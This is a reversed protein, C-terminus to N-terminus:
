ATRETKIVAFPAGQPDILVGFTGVDPIPMPDVMVQGGGDRAAQAAAEADDVEFDPMWNTPVGEPLMDTIGGLQKGEKNILVYNGMEEGTTEFTWGFLDGYFIQAQEKDKTGLEPWSFSGHEDRVKWGPMSDSQWLNIMAGTPDSLVAMRGNPLDMGPVIAQAGLETAKAVTKDVDDVSIYLNWHPPINMSREQEPQEYGGAAGRGGVLFTAYEGLDGIESTEDSWGFVKSYFPKAAALDTTALEVWCFTGPEHKDVTTV